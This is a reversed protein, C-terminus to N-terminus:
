HYTYEYKVSYEIENRGNYAKVEEIRDGDSYIITYSATKHGKKNIQTITQVRNYEDYSFTRKSGRAGAGITSRSEILRDSDDYLYYGSISKTFEGLSSFHSLQDKIKLSSQVKNSNRQEALMKTMSEMTAQLYDKSRYTHIYSRVIRDRKDTEYSNGMGMRIMHKSNEDDGGVLYIKAGDHNKTILRKSTADFRSNLYNIQQEAQYRALQDNIIPWQTNFKIIDADENWGVFELQYKLDNFMGVPADKPNRKNTQLDGYIDFNLDIMITGNREGQDGYEDFYTGTISKIVRAKGVEERLNCSFLLLFVTIMPLFSLYSFKWKGDSPKKVLQMVRPKLSLLAFSNVLSLQHFAPSDRRGLNLLANSYVEIGEQDTVIKDTLFENNLRSQKSLYYVFPNFWLAAKLLEFLLADLSHLQKSHISEHKLIVHVDARSLHEQSIFILNFFSFPQQTDCLLLKYGEYNIKRGKHKLSIVTILNKVILTLFAFVGILYIAILLENIAFSTQAKEVQVKTPKAPLITVEETASTSAETTQMSLSIAPDPVEKELFEVVQNNNSVEVNFEILPISFAAVVIFVLVARNLQYFTLGKSIFYYITSFGMLILSAKLLYQLIDIM